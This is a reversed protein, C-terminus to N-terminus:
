DSKSNEHHQATRPRAAIEENTESVMPGQGDNRVSDESHPIERRDSRVAGRGPEV